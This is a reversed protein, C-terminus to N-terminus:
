ESELAFPDPKAVTVLMRHDHRVAVQNPSVAWAAHEGAGIPGAVACGPGRWFTPKLVQDSRAANLAAWCSTSSSGIM